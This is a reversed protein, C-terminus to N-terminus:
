RFPLTHLLFFFFFLGGGALSSCLLSRRCSFLPSAVGLPPFPFAQFSSSHPGQKLAAASPDPRHLDFKAFISWTLPGAVPERLLRATGWSKDDTVIKHQQKGRELFVFFGWLRRQPVVSPTSRRGDDTVPIFVIFIQRADDNIRGSPRMAAALFVCRLTKLAHHHESFLLGGSALLCGARQESAFFLFGYTHSLSYIEGVEEFMQRFM